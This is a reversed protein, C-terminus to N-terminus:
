ITSLVSFILCILVMMFRYLVFKWSCWRSKNPKIYQATATIDYVFKRFLLM